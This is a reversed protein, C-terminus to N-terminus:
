DGEGSFDMMGVQSGYIDGVAEEVSCFAIAILEQSDCGGSM